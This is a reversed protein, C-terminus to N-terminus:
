DQDQRDTNGPCLGEELKLSALQDIGDTSDPDVCRSIWGEVRHGQEIMVITQANAAKAYTSMGPYEPVLDGNGDDVQTDSEECLNFERTVIVTKVGNDEPINDFEATEVKGIPYLDRGRYKEQAQASWKVNIAEGDGSSKDVIVSTLELVVDSKDYPNVTVECTNTVGISGKLESQSNGGKAALASGSFAVSSILAASAAIGITKKTLQKNM